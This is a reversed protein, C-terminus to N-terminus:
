NLHKGGNKPIILNNELVNKIQDDVIPVIFYFLM